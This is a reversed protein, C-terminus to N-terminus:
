GGPVYAAECVGRVERGCWSVQTGCGSGSLCQHLGARFLLQVLVQLIACHCRVPLTHQLSSPVMLVAATGSVDGLIDYVCSDAHGHALMGPQAATPPRGPLPARTTRRWTLWAACSALRM